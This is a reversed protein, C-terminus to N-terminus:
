ARRPPPRWTEWDLQAEPVGVSRAYIEVDHRAQHDSRAYRFSRGAFVVVMEDDSGFSCYWGGTANLVLRLATALDDALAGAVEFEIFTWRSPQGANPDGSDSRWIRRVSLDPGDLVISLRLSEGLLVGRFPQSPAPNPMAETDFM